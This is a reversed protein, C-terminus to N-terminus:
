SYLFGTWPKEAVGYFQGGSVPVNADRRHEPMEEFLGTHDRSTIGHKSVMHEDWAKMSKLNINCPACKWKQTTYGSPTHSSPESEVM